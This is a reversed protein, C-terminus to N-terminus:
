IERFFRKFRDKNILGIAYKENEIYDRVFGALADALRLLVEQEDRLDVKIKEYKIDLNKLENQMLTKDSKRLGDVIVNAKYRSKIKKSKDIIAKGIALAVLPTYAITNKYSSFYVNNKLLDVGIIEQIFKIKNKHNTKTWKSKGKSDKELATIKSRLEELTEKESIIISVLFFRGRTDQGSEDVYVYLKKSKTQYPIM